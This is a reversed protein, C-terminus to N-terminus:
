YGNLKRRQQTTFSAERERQVAAERREWYEILREPGMAIQEENSPVGLIPHPTWQLAM